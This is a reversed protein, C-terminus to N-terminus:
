RDDSSKIKKNLLSVEYSLNNIMDRQYLVTNLLLTIIGISGIGEPQSQDSNLELALQCLDKATQSELEKKNPGKNRSLTTDKIASWFKKSLEMAKYKQDNQDKVHSLVEQDFTTSHFVQEKNYKSKDNGVKLGANQQKPQIDDRFANYNTNDVM